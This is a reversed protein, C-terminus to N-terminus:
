REAHIPLAMKEDNDNTQELNKPMGSSLHGARHICIKQRSLVCPLFNFTGSELAEVVAPAAELLTTLLTWSGMRRQM